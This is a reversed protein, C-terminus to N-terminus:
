GVSEDSQRTKNSGGAAWFAAFYGVPPVLFLPISAVVIVSLQISQRRAVPFHERADWHGILAITATVLATLGLTAGTIGFEYGAYAAVCTVVALAWWLKPATIFERYSDFPAPPLLPPRGSRPPDPRSDPITFAFVRGGIKIYPTRFYAYLSAFGVAAGAALCVAPLGRDVVALSMVCGGIAWSLWYVPRAYRVDRVFLLSLLGAFLIVM